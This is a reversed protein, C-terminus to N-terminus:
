FPSEIEADPAGDTDTGSSTPSGASGTSPVGWAVPVGREVLMRWAEFADTLAQVNAPSPDDAVNEVLNLIERTDMVRQRWLAAEARAASADARLAALEAGANSEPVYTNLASTDGTHYDSVTYTTM